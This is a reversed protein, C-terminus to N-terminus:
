LMKVHSSTSSGFFSDENLEDEFDIAKELAIFHELSFNNLKEHIVSSLELSNDIDQNCDTLPILNPFDTDIQKDSIIEIDLKEINSAHHNIADQIEQTNYNNTLEDLRQKKVEMQLTKAAHRLVISLDM